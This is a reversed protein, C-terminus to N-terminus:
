GRKGVTKDLYSRIIDFTAPAAWAEFVERDTAAAGRWAELVPRRLTHKTLRFADAPISGLRGAIGVAHEVLTDHSEAGDVLGRELAEEATYTRGTYVMEQLHEKPAAFRLVELPLTPFPVGVRLEPVGVRGPGWAMLRHDCACALIYGGAIAHGNIAAVVPRPFSFLEGLGRSLEPLFEELYAQGGDLVRFLDVGASFISGTGTLVVAELDAAAVAALERGLDAFLETDLANAKGHEMRLVAVRGHDERHIM